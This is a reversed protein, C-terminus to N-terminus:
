ERTKAKERASRLKRRLEVIRRSSDLMDCRVMYASCAAAFASEWVLFWSGEAMAEGANFSMCGFMVIPAYRAVRKM